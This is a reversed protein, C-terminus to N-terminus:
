YKEILIFKEEDPRQVAEEALFMKSKKLDKKMYQLSFPVQWTLVPVVQTGFGKKGRNTRKLELFNTKLKSIYQNM